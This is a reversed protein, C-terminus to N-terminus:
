RKNRRRITAIPEEAQVALVQSASELKYSAVALAMSPTNTVLANALDEWATQLQGLPTSGINGTTMASEAVFPLFIRGRGSRGSAGSLLKILAAVQPVMEGGTGGDWNAPTGAATPFVRGDPTGDLKTIVVTSVSFADSCPAFNLSSVNADLADFIDSEDGTPSLIHIVNTANYIPGTWNLAVRYCDDIIPLPM